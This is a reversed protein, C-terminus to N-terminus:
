IKGDYIKKLDDIGNSTLIPIIKKIEEDDFDWWKLKKLFSIQGFSFRRKVFVGPNGSWIEYPGIDKTIVSNSGIVAGDDIKVGSMITAGSGIWVDNGIIVDGNSKPHGEVAKVGFNDKPIHGFPFTSIWDVRHSGGMFIEVNDAISCFSGIKLKTDEGWTRVRINGAGYTHKGIKM